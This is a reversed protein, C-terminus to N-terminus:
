DKGSRASKKIDDSCKKEYYCCSTTVADTIKAIDELCCYGEKQHKCDEGCIILNM